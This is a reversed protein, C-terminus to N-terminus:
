ASAYDFEHAVDLLFMYLQDLSIIVCLVLYIWPFAGASFGLWTNDILHLDEVVYLFFGRLLQEARETILLHLDYVVQAEIYLGCTVWDGLICIERPFLDKEMCPISVLFIQADLLVNDRM